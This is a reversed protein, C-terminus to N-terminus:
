LKNDMRTDWVYEVYVCKESEDITYLVVYRKYTLKRYEVEIDSLEYIPYLFPTKGLGRIKAHLDTRLVRAASSSVRALFNIHENFMNRADDGIIVRYVRSAM